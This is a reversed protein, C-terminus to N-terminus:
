TESTSRAKLRHFEALLENVSEDAKLTAETKIPPADDDGSHKLHQPNKWGYNNTLDFIVGATNPGSLLRKTRDIEIRLKAKKVTNSFEPKKEYECLAQRYSFGLHFALEAVSPIGGDELGDFYQDIKAEMVLPDSYLPPRGVDAM